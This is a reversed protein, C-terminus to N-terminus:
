TAGYLDIGQDYVNFYLDKGEPDTLSVESYSFTTKGYKKVTFTLSSLWCAGAHGDGSVSTEEVMVAGQLGDKLDASFTTTGAVDSLCPGKEAGRFEMFGPDYHLTFGYAYIPEAYLGPEIFAVIDVMVEMGIYAYNFSDISDAAIYYPRTQIQDSTLMDKNECSILILSALFILIYKM